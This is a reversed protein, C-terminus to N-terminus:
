SAARRLAAHVKVLALTDRECYALLAARLQEIEAPSTGGSAIVEFAESAAGGDSIGPLDAYSLNPDLAPAVAKISYSGGFSRRYVYNRTVPLLDRLRDIIADLSSRLDPLVAILQGLTTREFPSYVIVPWDHRGLAEILSTAFARRPDDRGDALFADHELTGTADLHHLSWQFPIREFPHTGPYVPIAPSMTEFDLYFAPPGFGRLAGPLDPSVWDEGTVWCERVRNQNGTLGADDPLDRIALAGNGSLAEYQKATLRPLTGIWDEPLHAGCRGFYDCGRCERTMAVEPPAPLDLLNLLTDAAAAVSTQRARADLTVDVAKFLGELRLGSLDRVYSADIHLVEANRIGIGCRDLVDLQFAVDEVHDDKVDGAAKVERLLWRDDPTRVLMDVRIHRGDASFAGEFLVTTRDSAMAAATTAAADDREWPPERILVGEPYLSRALSGVRSGISAAPSGTPSRIPDHRSFWLLRPCTQGLFYGSKTLHM